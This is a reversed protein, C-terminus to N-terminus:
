LSEGHALLKYMETDIEQKKSREFKPEADIKTACMAIKTDYLIYVYVHDWEFICYMCLSIIVCETCIGFTIFLLRWSVGFLFVCEFNVIFSSKLIHLSCTLFNTFIIFDYCICHTYILSRQLQVNSRNKKHLDYIQCLMLFLQLILNLTFIDLYYVM